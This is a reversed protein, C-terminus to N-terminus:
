AYEIRNVFYESHADDCTQNALYSNQTCSSNFKTQKNTQASEKTTRFQLIDSAFCREANLKNFHICQQQLQNSQSQKNTAVM